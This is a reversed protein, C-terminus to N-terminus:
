SLLQYTIFGGLLALGIPFKRPEPADAETTPIEEDPTSAVEGTVNSEISQAQAQAAETAAANTSAEVVDGAEVAELTMAATEQASKVADLAKARQIPDDTANYVHDAAVIAGVVAEHARTVPDKTYESEDFYLTGNM